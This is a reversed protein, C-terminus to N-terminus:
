SLSKIIDKSVMYLKLIKHGLSTLIAAMQVNKLNATDPHFTLSLKWQWHVCFLLFVYNMINQQLKLIHRCVKKFTSNPSAQGWALYQSYITVHMHKLLWTGSSKSKHVRDSHAGCMRVKVIACILLSLEETCNGSQKPHSQIIWLKKNQPHMWLIASLSEYSWWTAIMPHIKTLNSILTNKLYRNIFM